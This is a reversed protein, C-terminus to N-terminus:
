IMRQRIAEQWLVAPCPEDLLMCHIHLPGESHKFWGNAPVAGAVDMGEVM